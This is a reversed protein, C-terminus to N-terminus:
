KKPRIFLMAKDKLFDLEKINFLKLLLFYTVGTLLVSLSILLVNNSIYMQLLFLPLVTLIGILLLKSIDKIQQYGGYKMIKGPYYSNIFFHISTSVLEGIAIHVIGYQLTFAFIAVRVIIKLYQQRLILNTKGLVKLLNVNIGSIITILRALCLVQMIPVAPLWKDTLLLQIIPKAMVALFFFIPVVLLATSKIISKTYNVLKPTNDQIAALGPFLVRNMSTNVFSFVVDSFQTGRTYYGLDKASILKAIFLAYFNNVITNLLSSALLNSGFKFLQKISKTSFLLSPKWSTLFWVLTTAIIARIVAQWALAWVGYGDYAMYIAISGSIITSSLTIKTLTKFDMEITLLTSPVAFFSNIVISIALVRLLPNLLPIDYYGAVTPALFFLLGYCVLSIIINVYFVSSIDAKTRDQKQVLAQTFGSEVFVKSLAIFVLLLGIIGYEKPSLIRALVIGIVFQILQVAIKELASWALGSFIKNGLGM